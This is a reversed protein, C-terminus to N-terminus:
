RREWPATAGRAPPSMRSAARGTRLSVWHGGSLYVETPVHRESDNEVVVATTIKSADVGSPIEITRSVYREFREVEYSKGAYEATVTFRVPPLMLAGNKIAAASSDLQTITVSLPVQESDSAGVVQMIAATDVAVARMDYSIGGTQVSLTMAKQAMDEVNKVVLQASVTSTDASVPVVVSSTAGAMQKKLASQDM